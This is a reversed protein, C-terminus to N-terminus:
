GAQRKGAAGAHATGRGVQGQDSRTRMHRAQVACLGTGGAAGQLGPLQGRHQCLAAEKPAYQM